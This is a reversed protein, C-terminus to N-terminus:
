KINYFLNFSDHNVASLSDHQSTAKKRNLEMGQDNSRLSQSRIRLNATDM